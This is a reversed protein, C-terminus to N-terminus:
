VWKLSVVTLPPCPLRFVLGEGGGEVEEGAEDEDDEDSEDDDAM